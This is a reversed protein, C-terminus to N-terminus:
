ADEKGFTFAYAGRIAQIAKVLRAREPPIAGAKIYAVLAACVFMRESDRPATPRYYGTGNVTGNPKAAGNVQGGAVPTAKRITTYTRGGKERSSTEVDYRKGPEIAELLDPWADYMKGDAAIVTGSRGQASPPRIEAVEVIM